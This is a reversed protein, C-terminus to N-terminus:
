NKISWTLRPLNIADEMLEWNLYVQIMNSEKQWWRKHDRTIEGSCSTLRQGDDTRRYTQWCHSLFVDRFSSPWIWHFIVPLKKPHGDGFVVVLCWSQGVVFVVSNDVEQKAKFFMQESVVLCFAIFFWLFSRQTVTKLFVVLRWSQGVVVVFHRVQM